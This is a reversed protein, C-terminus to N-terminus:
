RVVEVAHGNVDLQFEGESAARGVENSGRTSMLYVDNIAEASFLVVNAIM